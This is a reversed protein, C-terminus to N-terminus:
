VNPLRLTFGDDFGVNVEAEGSWLGALIIFHCFLLLTSSETTAPYVNWCYEITAILMLRSLIPIKTCHWLLFPLGHFYWSYFQYHLTRSFVIGIFNSSLMLTTVHDPTISHVKELSRLHPVFGNKLVAFVGNEARCWRGFLFAVLVWIHGAILFKALGESIFTDPDLFKWNVTWKYIFTRSFEFARSFYSYPNNLLFPLAITVQISIILLLNFLTKWAGVSKFVLLGFAPFFLLVNMKISLGLSYFVCALKWRQNIMCFICVYIFAMAVTDNFLRLAYISHLRKSLCITILVYPRLQESKSYIGFVILLTFLYLAAFIYQGTRVDLGGSTIYYLASYVYLFGAPYVLPGTDGNIKTYDREGQLYGSVEQMYARWDIETYAVYKIILFNLFVESFFLLGATYWFYSPDFLLSRILSLTSQLPSKQLTVKGNSPEKLNEVSNLM